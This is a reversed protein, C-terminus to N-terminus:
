TPASPSSRAPTARRGCGCTSRRRRPGPAAPRRARPPSSPTTPRRRGERRVVGYGPVARDGARGQGEGPRPLRRGRLGHAARGAHLDRGARPRHADGVGARRARARHVRPRHEHAAKRAANLSSLPSPTVTTRRRPSRAWRGVSRPGRSTPSASSSSRRCGTSLRRSAPRRTSTSAGRPASSRRRRASSRRRRRRAGLPARDRGGAAGGPVRDLPLPLPPAARRAARPQPELHPRRGAAAAARVHRAGAGDRRVRRAGRVAPGRVRRGRPRDRRDAAGARGPRRAPRRAPDAARCSSPPSCTTTRSSRAARSPSGSRSCSAGTTGTTSRRARRDPGRLVAAPHVARRAGARAGQGRVDQRRRARGGAAAAPRARDGPAARHALGDDVLYGAADLRAALSPPRRESAATM